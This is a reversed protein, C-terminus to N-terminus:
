WARGWRYQAHGCRAARGHRELIGLVLKKRANVVISGDGLKKGKELDEDFEDEFEGFLEEFVDEITILGATDGNKDLVIAISHKTNKFQKM